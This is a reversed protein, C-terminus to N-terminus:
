SVMPCSDAEGVRERRPPAVRFISDDETGSRADGDAETVGDEAGIEPFGQEAGRRMATGAVKSM